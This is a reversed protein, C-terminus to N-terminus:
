GAFPRARILTTVQGALQGHLQPVLPTDDIHVLVLQMFYLQNPEFKVSRETEINLKDAEPKTLKYWGHGGVFQHSPPLPVDSNTGIATFMQALESVKCITLHAHGEAQGAANVARDGNRYETVPNKSAAPAINFDTVTWRLHPDERSSGPAEKDFNVVGDADTTFEVNTQRSGTFEISPNINNSYTLARLDSELHRGYGGQLAKAYDTVMLEHALTSQHIM